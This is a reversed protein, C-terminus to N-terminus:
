PALRLNPTSSRVQITNNPTIFNDLFKKQLTFLEDFTFNKVDNDTRTILTKTPVENDEFHPALHPSLHTAQHYHTDSLVCM